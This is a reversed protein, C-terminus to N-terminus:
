DGLTIGYKKKFCDRTLVLAIQEFDTFPSRSSDMQGQRYGIKKFRVIGATPWYSKSPRAELVESAVTIRDGSYIRQTQHIHEYGVNLYLTGGTTEPLSLGLALAFGYVGNTVAEDFGLKQAIDLRSHIPQRNATIMCFIINDLENIDAFEAHQIRLGVPCAEYIRGTPFHSLEREVQAHYQEIRDAFQHVELLMDTPYYILFTCSAFQGIILHCHPCQYDAQWLLSM